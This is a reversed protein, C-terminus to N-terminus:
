LHWLGLTPPARHREIETINFTAPTGLAKTFIAYLM